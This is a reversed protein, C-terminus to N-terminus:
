PARRASPVLIRSPPPPPAAPPPSPTYLAQFQRVRRVYEQTEPYPPIRKEYRLVTQEGANYAALALSIDDAFMALLDRLYTTGIRLNLAPDLLKQAVTQRRDATVGYREGTDPIVQMLGVAGKASIAAPEFASEVAIMAKVLAVDVGRARAAEEILAAYRAINPHGNVRRYLASAVLDDPVQPAPAPEAVPASDANTRGKFYLQYRDDLRETAIHARGQEDVYGWVDARAFSAAPLVAIAVLAVVVSVRNV